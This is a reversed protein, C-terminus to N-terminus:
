AGLGPARELGLLTRVAQVFAGLAAGIIVGRQGAVNVVDMLWNFATVLWPAIMEGTPVQCILAIVIVVVMVGSDINKFRLVRAGASFISFAGISSLTIAAPGIIADFLRTFSDSDIGTIIGVTSFLLLTAILVVNGYWGAEKRQISRANLLFINLAGLGFAFAEIIIVWSKVNAAANDIVPIDFFWETLMLAGIAATLLLPGIRSKM